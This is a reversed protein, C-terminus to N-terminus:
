HIGPTMDGVALGRAGQIRKAIGDQAQELQGVQQQDDPAPTWDTQSPALSNFLRRLLQVIM